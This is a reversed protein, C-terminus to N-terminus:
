CPWGAEIALGQWYEHGEDTADWRFCSALTIGPTREAECELVIPRGHSCKAACEVIREFQLPFAEALQERMTQPM